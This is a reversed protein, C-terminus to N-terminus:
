AGQKAKILEIMKGKSLGSVDIGKGAAVTRIEDLTLMSLKVDGPPAVVPPAAPAEASAAPALPESPEETSEAPEDDLESEASAEAIPAPAPAPPSFIPTVPDTLKPLNVVRVPREPNNVFAPLPIEEGVVKSEVLEHWGLWFAAQDKEYWGDGDTSLVVGPKFVFPRPRGGHEPSPVQFQQERKGFLRFKYIKM